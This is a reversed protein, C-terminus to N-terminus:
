SGRDFIIVGSPGFNMYYVLALYRANSGYPIVNAFIRVGSIPTGNQVTTIATPAYSTALFPYASEAGFLFDSTALNAVGGNTHLRYTAGAYVLTVDFGVKNTAFNVAASSSALTVTGPPNSTNAGGPTPATAALAPYTFSGTTPRAGPSTAHGVVYHFGLKPTLAPTLSYTYFKGSLQGGNWRGWTLDANGGLEGVSASGIGLAEDPDNAHAYSALGGNASFTATAGPRTDIGAAQNPNANIMGAYGLTYTAAPTLPATIAGSATGGGGGTGTGGAKTYTYTLDYSQTSAVPATVSVNFTLRAVVQTASSSVITYAFNTISGAAGYADQVSQQLVATNTNNPVSADPLGSVTTAPIQIVIGNATVTGTVTLCWGTSCSGGGSGLTIGSIDINPNFAVVTNTGNLKITFTGASFDFSFDLADLVADIGTGIAPFASKLFDYSQYSVGAATFQAQLNANVVAQANLMQQATLNAAQNIWDSFVTALNNSLTPNNILALTTLPTINAVGADFTWSYQTVGAASASLLAPFTLGNVTISYTGDAGATASATVGNAGVVTVLAGAMPAGTAATGTITVPPAEAAANGGGGGGGGCGALLASLFLFFIGMHRLAVEGLRMEKGKLSTYTSVCISASPAM